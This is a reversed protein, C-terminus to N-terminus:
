KVKNKMNHDCLSCYFQDSHKCMTQMQNMISDANKQLFQRYEANTKVNNLSKMKSNLECNPQYSTFCRADQMGPRTMNIDCLINNKYFVCTMYIHLIDM